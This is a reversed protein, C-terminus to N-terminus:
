LMYPLLLVNLLHCQKGPRPREVTRVAACSEGNREREWREQSGPTTRDLVWKELINFLSKALAYRSGNWAIDGVSDFVDSCENYWFIYSLIPYCNQNLHIIKTECVCVCLIFTIYLDLLNIPLLM